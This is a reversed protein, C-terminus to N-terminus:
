LKTFEEFTERVTQDEHNVLGGHDLLDWLFSLPQSGPEHSRYGLRGFCVYPSFSKVEPRYRRCWLVINSRGEAADRGYQLLKRIVPSDDHMRSGGFWTVRGAGDLFENPSDANGLNVWLFACNKWEQVGCYKNFSLKAGDLRRRDEASAALSFCRNIVHEKGTGEMMRGLQGSGDGGGLVLAAVDLEISRVSNAAPASPAAVPRAVGEGRSPPEEALSQPADDGGGYASRQRKRGSALQAESPIAADRYDPKAGQSSLRSSRRLPGDHIRHLREGRNARAPHASRQPPQTPSPKPQQPPPKMLGLERLRRENRAIKAARMALYPNPEEDGAEASGNGSAM